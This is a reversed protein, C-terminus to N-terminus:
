LSNKICNLYSFKINKSIAASEKQLCDNKINQTFIKCEEESGHASIAQKTFCYFSLRQESERIISPQESLKEQYLVEETYKPEVILEEKQISKKKLYPRYAKFKNQIKNIEDLYKQENEPNKRILRYLLVAKDKDSLQVYKLNTPIPIKQEVKIAPTPASSCGVFMILFTLYVIKM